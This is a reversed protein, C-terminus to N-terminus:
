ELRRRRPLLRDVDARSTVDLKRFIRHLYRDVVARSLALRDVIAANAHGEAVRQAVQREASTLSAWGHVRNARTTLYEDPPLYHPNEIVLVGLLLTPHTRLV